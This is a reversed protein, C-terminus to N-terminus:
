LLVVSKRIEDIDKCISKKRGTIGKGAGCWSERGPGVAKYRYPKEM